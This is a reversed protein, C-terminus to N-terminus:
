QIQSNPRGIKPMSMNNTFINKKYEDRLLSSRTQPIALHSSRLNKHALMKLNEFYQDRELKQMLFTKQFSHTMIKDMDDTPLRKVGFRM